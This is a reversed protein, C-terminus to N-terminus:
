KDQPGRRAVRGILPLQRIVLRLLDMFSKESLREDQRLQLAGILPVFLIGAVIILALTYFPISGALVGLGGIVVAFVVLYFSGNAWASKAVVKNDENRSMLVDGKQTHHVVVTGVPAYFAVERGPEKEERPLDRNMGDNVPGRATMVPKRLPSLILNMFESLVESQNIQTFLRGDEEVAWKYEALYNEFSSSKPLPSACELMLRAGDPWNKPSRSYLRRPEAVDDSTVYCAIILIGQGKIEEAVRIVEQSSDPPSPMGDSLVFLVPEGTYSKHALEARFRDQVIKFGAAMPTGGLMQKGLGEIHSKYKTWNHALHDISITTTQSGSLELLDRVDPGSRGLFASMLGGFGFGYAFIKLLPAVKESTGEQSLNKAKQVLDEFSDRFSELRSKTEGHRNEISAMMSGSVDILLGVLYPREPTPRPSDVGQSMEVEKKKQL